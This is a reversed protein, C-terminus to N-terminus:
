QGEVATVLKLKTQRGFSLRGTNAPTKMTSIEGLQVNWLLWKEGSELGMVWHSHCLFNYRVFKVGSDLGRCFDLNFKVWLGTTKKFPIKESSLCDYSCWEWALKRRKEDKEKWQKGRFGPLSFSLRHLKTLWSWKELFVSLRLSAWRVLPCQCESNGASKEMSWKLRRM